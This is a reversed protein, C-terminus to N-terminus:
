RWGTCTVAGSRTLACVNAGSLAVRVADAIGSVHAPALVLETPDAIRKLQADTLWQPTRGFNSCPEPLHRPIESRLMSESPEQCVVRHDFVYPERNCAPACNLHCDRVPNADCSRDCDKARREIEQKARDYRARSAARDLACIPLSTRRTGSALPVGRSVDGWCAVRGADTAACVTHDRLTVDVVRATGLPRTARPTADLTGDGLEGFVGPGYCTLVGSELLGCRTAPSTGAPLVRADDQRNSVVTKTMRAVIADPDARQWAAAVDPPVKTAIGIAAADPMKVPTLQTGDHSPTWCAGAVTSGREIRACVVTMAGRSTAVHTVKGDDVAAFVYSAGEGKAGQPHSKQYDTVCELHASRTRACYVVGTAAGPAQKRAVHAVFVVEAVPQTFPLVVDRANEGTFLPNGTTVAVGARDIRIAHHDGFPEDLNTVDIAVVDSSADGVPAPAATAIPRLPAPPPPPPAAPRPRRPEACAVTVLLLPMWSRM